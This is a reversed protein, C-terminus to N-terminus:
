VEDTIHTIIKYMKDFSVFINVLSLTTLFVTTVVRNFM